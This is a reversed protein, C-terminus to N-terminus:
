TERTPSPRTILLWTVFGTILPLSVANLLTGAVPLHNFVPTLALTIYAVAATTIVAIFVLKVWMHKSVSGETAQRHKVLAFCLAAAVSAESIMPAPLAALAAVLLIYNRPKFPRTTM